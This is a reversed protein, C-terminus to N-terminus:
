KYGGREVIKKEGGSKSYMYIMRNLKNREFKFLFEICFNLKWGKGKTGRYNAGPYGPLGVRGILGPIGEAGIAGM